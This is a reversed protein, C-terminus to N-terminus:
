CTEFGNRHVFYLFIRVAGESFSVKLKMVHDINVFHVCLHEFLKHVSRYRIEDYPTSRSIVLSFPFARFHPTLYFLDFM